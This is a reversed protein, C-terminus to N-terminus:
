DSGNDSLAEALGVLLLQKHQPLGLYCETLRGAEGTVNHPLLFLAHVSPACVAQAFAVLYGLSVNRDGGELKAVYSRTFNIKEAVQGQTLGAYQRWAKFQPRNGEKQESEVM